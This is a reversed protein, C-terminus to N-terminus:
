SALPSEDREVACEWGDYDGAEATALDFLEMVVAHIHELEVPDERYVQAGYPLEERELHAARELSFGADRAAAIFRDRADATEFHAWHDVRRPIVLADGHDRLVDTLRRDDMWQRREDDPLLFDRYYGWDPDPRVDAYTRREGFLERIAQLADKREADGYFALEWEGGSRLRAVYFLPAAAARETLVDEIANFAESEAANGMGHEDPELMQVRVRYLTDATPPWMGTEFRFDVFFSAPAGDVDCPYFDWAPEADSTM